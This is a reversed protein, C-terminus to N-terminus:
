LLTSWFWPIRENLQAIMRDNPEIWHMFTHDTTAQLRPDFSAFLWRDFKTVWLGAMCQWLYPKPVKDQHAMHNKTRYPCKLELGVRHDFSLGDPSAGVYFLEDHVILGVETFEIGTDLEVSARARPEYQRGWRIAAFSLEREDAGLERAVKFEERLTVLGKTTATMIRHISSAGISAKRSAKWEDSGQEHKGILQM